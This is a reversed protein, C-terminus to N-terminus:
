LLFFNTISLCSYYSHACRHIGSLTVSTVSVNRCSVKRLCFFPDGIVMVIFNISASSKFSIFSDALSFYLPHFSLCQISFTLILSSYLHVYSLYRFILFPSRWLFLSHDQSVSLLFHLSYLCINRTMCEQEVELCDYLLIINMNMVRVVFQKLWKKTIELNKLLILIADHSMCKSIYNGTM